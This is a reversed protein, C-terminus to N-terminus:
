QNSYPLLGISQARKIAKRVKRQNYATLGTLRRSLIKGRESLFRSLLATDKYDITQTPDELFPDIKKRRRFLTMRQIPPLHERQRHEGPKGGMPKGKAGKGRDEVVKIARGNLERGNLEEIARNAAEESEMEVFGFGKSRRSERDVAVVASLCGGIEQFQAQLQEDTVEFELNSVFLKKGM